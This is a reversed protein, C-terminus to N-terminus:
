ASQKEAFGVQASHTRSLVTGGEVAATESFGSETTVECVEYFRLGLRSTVDDITGRYFAVPVRTATLIDAM